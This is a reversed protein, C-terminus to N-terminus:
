AADSSGRRHADVRGLVRRIQRVVLTADPRDSRLQRALGRLEDQAGGFRPERARQAELYSELETNCRAMAARLPEGDPQDLCAVVEDVLDALSTLRRADDPDPTHSGPPRLAPHSRERRAGAEIRTTGTALVAASGHPQQARVLEGPQLWRAQTTAARVSTDAVLARAPGRPDAPADRPM